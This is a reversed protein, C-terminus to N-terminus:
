ARDSFNDLFLREDSTLSGAGREELKEMIRDYEARNVEHLSERRIRRWKELDVRKPAPRAKARFRRGRSTWEFIKITAFGGVAGGLHAFHAVQDGPGGMGGLLDFGAFILVLIWAQVPLIGWFYITDRPWYYAYGVTVGFIAGSAGVIRSYPTLFSLLGGAIGAVLYLVIFARGGMRDELRPGFFYLAVMNWLIHTTGAHLFMYTVITWPRYPLEVPVLAGLDFALPTVLQLLYLAINAVLLRLVWPTLPM